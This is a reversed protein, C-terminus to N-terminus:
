EQVAYVLTREAFTFDRQNFDGSCTILNLGQRKPDVSLLLSVMDVQANPLKEVKVVNYSVVKGDGRIVQIKHGPALVGIKTFVGEKTLGTSHGDILVAGAGVGPKASASYWGTDFINKPADLAGSGNLGVQLVRAKVGLTPIQLYRPGDPATIHATYMAESPPTEEPLYAPAASPQVKDQDARAVTESLVSKNWLMGKVVFGLGVLNVIIALAFFVVAGRRRSARMPKQRTAKQSGKREQRQPMFALSPPLTDTPDRLEDILGRIDAAVSKEVRVPVIAETAEQGVNQTDARNSPSVVFREYYANIGNLRSYVYSREEITWFEEPRQTSHRGM